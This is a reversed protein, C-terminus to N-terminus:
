HSSSISGVFAKAEDLGGFHEVLHGMAMIDYQEAEAIWGHIVEIPLSHSDEM